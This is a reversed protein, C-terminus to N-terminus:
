ADCNSSFDRGFLHTVDSVTETVRRPNVEGAGPAGFVKIAENLQDSQGHLEAMEEVETLKMTEDWLKDDSDPEKHRKRRRSPAKEVDANHGQLQPAQAAFTVEMDTAVTLVRVGAAEEFLM